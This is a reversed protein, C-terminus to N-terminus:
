DVDLKVLTNLVWEAYVIPIIDAQLLHYCCCGANVGGICYVCKALIKVNLIIRFWVLLYLLHGFADFTIFLKQFPPSIM